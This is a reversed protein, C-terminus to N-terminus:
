VFFVIIAPKLRLDDLTSREMRHFGLDRHANQSSRREDFPVEGLYDGSGADRHLLVVHQANKAAGAAFPQRREDNAIPHDVRRGPNRAQEVLEFLRTQRSAIARRGVTTLNEAVDSLAAELHKGIELLLHSVGVVVGDAAEGLVLLALEDPQQLAYAGSVPASVGRDM